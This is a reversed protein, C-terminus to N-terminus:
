ASARWIADNALPQRTAAGEGVLTLLADETATRDILDNGRTMVAAVEQTVLGGPFARLADLPSKPAPRRELTPDLNAIVIDYAEVPQFGGAELRRGDLEFILSPATYRVPGDTQAAKGQSETPSGEATRAEARDREYAEVVAPDDIAAVLEDGPLGHDNLALALDADEDILLPTTFQTFQLARFVPEELAPDRLRATVVTRCARSTGAVRAKLDLSFPMGREDRFERDNLLRSGPTYGRQVYQEAHETLGIMVLRWRLQEGYRWNLVAHAPRASYAWPCGPDSFHTVDITPM